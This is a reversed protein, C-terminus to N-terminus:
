RRKKAKPKVSAKKVNRPKTKAEAPKDKTDDLEEPSEGAAELCTKILEDDPRVGDIFVFVHYNANRERITEIRGADKMRALEAMVFNQEAASMYRYDIDFALGTSHPPTDILVANRNVRNLVHQYQEPRVLSSVPLPRDFKRHYDTAVEEMVKLAEPRISRLLNLKMAQRDSSDDLNYSRGGFSKALAQLSEYDALLRQRTEPQGYSQDLLAKDEDTSKLQQEAATIQKQLELKKARDRSTLKNSQTKLSAIQNELNARAAQLRAYEDHLQSENYLGISHDDQYRSFVTQDAKAGVGYLIYNETAAPVSVMEGRQVMAALEVFDQCNRLNHKRVEAVQTALFWHRDEYHRLEPPVELAASEGASEVRDAKIKEVGETWLEEASRTSTLSALQNAPPHIRKIGAFHIIAWVAVGIAAIVPFLLLLTTRRYM